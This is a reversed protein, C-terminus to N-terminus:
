WSRSWSWKGNQKVVGIRISAKRILAESFGQKVGARLVDSSSHEEGGALRGKLWEIAQQLRTPPRGALPRRELEYLRQELDEIRKVLSKGDVPGFKM